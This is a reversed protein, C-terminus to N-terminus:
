AGEVGFLFLSYILRFWRTREEASSTDLTERQIENILLFHIFRILVMADMGESDIKGERLGEELFSIFKKMFGHAHNPVRLNIRQFRFWKMVAMFDPRLSLYSGFLIFYAYLKEEFSALDAAKELFLEGLHRRERDIMKWLMDNRNEFYFYLSSKTMGARKAIAELSSNWLGKEAVTEAIASFIHDPELLDEPRLLCKEEIMAFDPGKLKEKVGLGMCVMRRNLALLPSSEPPAEQPQPIGRLSLLFAGVTLLYNRAIGVESADWGLDETFLSSPFIESYRQELLNMKQSETESRPVFLVMAYTFYDSNEAFYRIFSENYADFADRFKGSGDSNKVQLCIADYLEIFYRRMEDLLADKGSFYRYLAPKTIGLDKAVSEMSTHSFYDRSWTSFAQEVIQRKREERKGM